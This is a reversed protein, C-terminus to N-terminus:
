KWNELFRSNKTDGHCNKAVYAVMKRSILVVSCLSMKLTQLVVLRVLSSLVM